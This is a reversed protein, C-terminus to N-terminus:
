PLEVTVLCCFCMWRGGLLHDSPELLYFLAESSESHRTQVSQLKEKVGPMSTAFNLVFNPPLVGQSQLVM